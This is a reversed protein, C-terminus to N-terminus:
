PILFEAVVSNTELGEIAYNYSSLPVISNSYIFDLREEYQGYFRTVGSDIEENFRSADFSDHWNLNNLTDSIIFSREDRYQYNTLDSWDSSSPAISTLFLIKNNTESTSIVKVLDELVNKELRSVLSLAEEVSAVNPVTPHYDVAILEVTKNETLAIEVSNKDMKVLIGDNIIITGGETTVADRNLLTALRTQNDLRGSLAIFSFNYESIQNAVYTLTEDDIREEGLPIFLTRITTDSDSLTYESNKVPNFYFPYSLTFLNLPYINIRKEEKKAEEEREKELIAKYRTEIKSSEPEVIIERAEKITYTACSSFFLAILFVTALLRRM